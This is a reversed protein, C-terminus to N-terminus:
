NAVLSGDKLSLTKKVPVSPTASFPANDPRTLYSVEIKGSSVDLSTVSIRDGLLFAKVPTGGAALVPAVYYFTGSGGPSSTLVVAADLKGDGDLDGPTVFSTLTTINSSASGSAAPVDSKGNSLQVQQSDLQYTANAVDPPPLSSSASNNSKGGCASLLAVSFLLVAAFFTRM